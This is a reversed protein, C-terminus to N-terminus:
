SIAIQKQERYQKVLRATAIEDSERAATILKAGGRACPYLEVRKAYAQILRIEKDIRAKEKDSMDLYGHMDRYAAPLASGPAYWENWLINNRTVAKPLVARGQAKIKEETLAELEKDSYLKYVNKRVTAFTAYETKGPKGLPFHQRVWRTKHEEKFRKQNEFDNVMEATAVLNAFNKATEFFYDIEREESVFAVGREKLQPLITEILFCKLEIVAPNNSGLVLFMLGNEDLWIINKGGRNEQSETESFRPVKSYTNPIEFEGAKATYEKATEGIQKYKEPISECARSVNELALWVCADMAAFWFKGGEHKYRVAVGKYRIIDAGIGDPEPEAKPADIRIGTEAKLYEIVEFAKLSGNKQLPAILGTATAFIVSQTQGGNATKVDFKRYQNEPTAKLFNVASYKSGIAKLIDAVCFYKKNNYVQIRIM